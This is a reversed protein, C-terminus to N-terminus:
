LNEDASQQSQASGQKLASKSAKSSKGTKGQSQKSQKSGQKPLPAASGDAESYTSTPPAPAAKIKADAEEFSMSGSVAPAPDIVVPAEDDEGGEEIKGYVQADPALYGFSKSPAVVMEADGVCSSANSELHGRLGVVSRTSKPRSKRARSRSQDDAQRRTYAKELDEYLGDLGLLYSEFDEAMGILEQIGKKGTRKCTRAEVINVVKEGVDALMDKQYQDNRRRCTQCTRLGGALTAVLLLTGVMGSLVAATQTGMDVDGALVKWSALGVYFFWLSVFFLATIVKPGNPGGLEAKYVRRRLVVTALCAIACLSFISVSFVLDGAIVVFGGGPYELAQEPYKAIWDPTAGQASWFIAAIMWPMGLGLFVNVSNSGTVNGIAADATEDEV